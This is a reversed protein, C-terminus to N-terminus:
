YSHATETQWRHGIHHPDLDPTVMYKHVNWYLDYAQGQQLSGEFRTTYNSVDM